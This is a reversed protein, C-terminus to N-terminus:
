VAAFSCDEKAGIRYLCNYVITCVIGVLVSRSDGFKTLFGFFFLGLLGSGFISGLVAGTHQITKTDSYAIVTGLIVMVVAAVAATFRSVFLYHKEDRNKSIRERYIDTVFVASVANMSSDLSSMAAAVTAAIVLGSLGAPMYNTVFYPLIGEPKQEGTLMAAAADTPNLKFFVYFATGLFMFFIWIPLRACVSWWIAKRAESDSSAGCYRQVCNQDTSYEQLWSTLGLLLMMMGTKESLAWGWSIPVLREGKLESFALKGDESAVRIIEGLGGPINMLIIILVVIGGLLLVITQIVDTWVVADIGGAITYVSVVVGSVVLCIWLDWGTLTNLLKGVLFLVIGLRIFQGMIFTISGYIRVGEGFRLGLYQYASTKRGTRYFPIIVVAAVLGAIPMMFNPIMRLWATHYSDAPYALFSVSSISTGVLSLGVVWGKFKRGGVFYEETDTNKKSFYYGLYAMSIFYVAIILWDLLHLSAM